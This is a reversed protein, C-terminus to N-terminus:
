RRPKALTMAVFEARAECYGGHWALRRWRTEVHSTYPNSNIGKNKSFAFRGENWEEYLETKLSSTM